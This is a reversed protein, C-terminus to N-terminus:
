AATRFQRECFTWLMRSADPGQGDGFHQADDGGSWAHGLGEIECLTAVTRRNRAFRTVRMPRRSGRRVLSCRGGRVGAAEAWLQAAAEGNSAAVVRDATGHIVLLPPWVVGAPLMDPPRRGRMARMASIPSHASGPPIGSHMVVARFAQPYLTAMLAAMSAGASLGALAIRQRDAPHFLCVQDIAAKLTAAERYAKRSDTDYWNWCGQVNARRDQEPYLVLFRHRAALRNMRTSRAFVGADQACGHLMVILPLRESRLVGAPRFLRYRRVGAPGVAFGSLWDGAGPPPEAHKRLSRVTRAVAQDIAKNGARLNTRTIALATRQMSKAWLLSPSAGKRSAM